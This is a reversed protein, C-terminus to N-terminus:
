PPVTVAPCVKGREMVRYLVLRFMSTVLMITVMVMGSASISM